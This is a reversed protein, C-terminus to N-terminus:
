EVTVYIPVKELTIPETVGWDNVTKATKITDNKQTLLEGNVWISQSTIHLISDGAVVTKLTVERASKKDLSELNNEKQSSTCSTLVATAISLTFIIKKM